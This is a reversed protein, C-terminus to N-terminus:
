GFRMEFGWMHDYFGLRRTAYSLGLQRYIIDKVIITSSSKKM